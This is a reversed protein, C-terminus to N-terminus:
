IVVIIVRSFSNFGALIYKYVGICEGNKVKKFRSTDVAAIFGWHCWGLKRLPISAPVICDSFLRVIGIDVVILGM